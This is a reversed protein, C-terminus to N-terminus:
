AARPDPTVNVQSSPAVSRFIRPSRSFMPPSPRGEDRLDQGRGVDGDPEPELGALTLITPDIRDFGPQDLRGVVRRPPPDGVNSEHAPARGIQERQRDV